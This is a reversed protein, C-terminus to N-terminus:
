KITELKQGTLLGADEIDLKVMVYGADGYDLNLIEYNKGTEDVIHTAGELFRATHANDYFTVISRDENLVGGTWNLDNLDLLKFPIDDLEIFNDTAPIVTEKSAIIMYEDDVVGSYVSDGLKIATDFFKNEDGFVYLKEEDIDGNLLREIERDGSTRYFAIDNRALFPENTVMKNKAAYNALCLGQYVGNESITFVEAFNKRNDAWFDSELPSALASKGHTFVANKEIFIPTMDAFQIVFVAATFVATKKVNFIKNSLAFVTLMILYYVPWFMRGSSRFISLLKLLNYPLNIRLFATNNAVVTTSVAFIALMLSVIALIRHRKLMSLLEKKRKGFFIVIGLLLTGALVGLGLYNFGEASGLGQGFAPLVASWKLKSVSVPNFLSNLNMTFYGYGLAGSHVTPTHFYGILAAVVPVILINMLIFGLKKIWGKNKIADDLIDASMILFIMPVFYFHIMVSLVMLLLYFYRKKVGRKSILYLYLASLILFQSALATHRFSRELMVPNISIVTSFVLISFLNESFLRCILAAVGGSLGYCMLNYIGFYQFTEPLLKSFTKFVIAFLPISDSFAISAGQPFAMKEAIGLPFLTSSDRYFLWGTYHQIIDREVYGRMIWDDFTVDLPIATNILLFSLIGLAFGCAFLLYGNKLIRDRM